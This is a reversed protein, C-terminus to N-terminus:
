QLEKEIIEQVSLICRCDPPSSIQECKGFLMTLAARYYKECAQKGCIGGGAEEWLEEFHEM